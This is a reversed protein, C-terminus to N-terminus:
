RGDRCNRGSTQAGVLTQQIHEPFCIEGQQWRGDSDAVGVVDAAAVDAAGDVVVAAAVVVAVDPHNCAVM